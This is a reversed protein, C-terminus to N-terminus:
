FNKSINFTYFRGEVDVEDSEPNVFILETIYNFGMGLLAGIVSLAGLLKGRIEFFFYM